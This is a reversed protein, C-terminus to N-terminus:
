PSQLVRLILFAAPVILFAILALFIAVVQRTILQANRRARDAAAGLTVALLLLGAAFALMIAAILKDFEQM